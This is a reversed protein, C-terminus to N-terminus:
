MVLDSLLTEGPLNLVPAVVNVPLLVDTCNCPTAPMEALSALCSGYPFPVVTVLPLPVGLTAVLDVLDALGGGV